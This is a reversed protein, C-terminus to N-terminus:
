KNLERLFEKAPDTGYWWDGKLFDYIEIIKITFLKFIIVFVNQKSLNVMITEKGINFYIWYNKGMRHIAIFNYGFLLIILKSVYFHFFIKKSM